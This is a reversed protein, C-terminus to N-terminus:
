VEMSLFLWRDSICGKEGAWNDLMGLEFGVWHLNRTLDDSEEKDSTTRDVCAVLQNCEFSESSALELLAM